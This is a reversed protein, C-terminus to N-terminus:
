RPRRDSGPRTGSENQAGPGTAPGDASGARDAAAWGAGGMLNDCHEDAWRELDQRSLGAALQAAIFKRNFIDEPTPRANAKRCLALGPGDHPPIMYASPWRERCAGVLRTAIGRRRVVDAVLVFEIMPRPDLGPPPETMGPPPATVWAVGTPFVHGDRYEVQWRWGARPDEPVDVGLHRIVIQGRPLPSKTAETTQSRSTM